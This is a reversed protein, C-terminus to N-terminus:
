KSIELESLEKRSERIEKMCKGQEQLISMGKESYKEKESLYEWRDDMKKMREKANEIKFELSNKEKEWESWSSVKM